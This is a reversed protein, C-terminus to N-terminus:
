SLSLLATCAASWKSAITCHVRRAIDLFVLSAPHPRILISTRPSAPLCTHIAPLCAPVKKMCYRTYNDTHKGQALELACSFTGKHLWVYADIAVRKGSMRKVHVDTMVPKLLQLLGPIGM